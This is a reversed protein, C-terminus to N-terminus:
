CFLVDAFDICNGWGEELVRVVALAEEVMLVDVRTKFNDGGPVTDVNQYFQEISGMSWLRLGFAKITNDM